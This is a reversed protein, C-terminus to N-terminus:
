HFYNNYGGAADIAEMSVLGIHVESIARTPYRYRVLMKKTVEIIEDEFGDQKASQLEKNTAVIFWIATRVPNFFPSSYFHTRIIKPYRRKYYIRVNITVLFVRIGYLWQSVWICPLIFISLLLACFIRIMRKINEVFDKNIPSTM